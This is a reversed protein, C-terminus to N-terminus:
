NNSRGKDLTVLFIRELLRDIDLKEEALSSISNDAKLSTDTRSSPKTNVDVFILCIFMLSLFVSWPLWHEGGLVQWNNSSLLISHVAKHSQIPGTWQRMEYFDACSGSFWYWGEEWMIHLTQLYSTFSIKLNKKVCHKFILCELHVRCYIPRSRYIVTSRLLCGKVTVIIAYAFLFTPTQSIEFLGIKLLDSWPM